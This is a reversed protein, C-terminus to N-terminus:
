SLLKIWLILCHAVRWGYSVGILHKKRRVWKYLETRNANGAIADFVAAKRISHNKWINKKISAM